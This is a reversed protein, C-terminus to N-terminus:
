QWLENCFLRNRSLEREPRIPRQQWNKVSALFEIGTTLMPLIRQFTEM